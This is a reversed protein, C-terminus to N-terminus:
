RWSRWRSAARWDARSEASVPHIEVPLWARRLEEGIEAREVERRESVVAEAPREIPVAEHEEHPLVARFWGVVGAVALIAGLVSVAGSTVM